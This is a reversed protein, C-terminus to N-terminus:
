FSELSLPHSSEPPSLGNLGPPMYAHFRLLPAAEQPTSTRAVPSLTGPCASGAAAPTARHKRRAFIFHFGELLFPPLTIVLFDENFTYLDFFVFPSRPWVGEM